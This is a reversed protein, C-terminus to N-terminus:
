KFFERAGDRSSVVPSDSELKGDKLRLIRNAFESTYTEHTVLIVTHGNRHLDSLIQMVQAGSASDLNGTPEDAFIVSPSNILARAIAVRQKQGGSLSGAEAFMKETLGVSAIAKEVLGRRKGAPVDAAYLLPMEVNDYVSARGLLNFSQFVFGMQKNRVRALEKDSLEEIKKGNFSYEGSTPRDLFSLINLLTSKGSGSPGMIAIFEGDKITFSAGAVAATVTGDDVYNKVLDKVIIM